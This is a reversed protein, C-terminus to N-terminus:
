SVAGALVEHTVHTSNTAMPVVTYQKHGSRHITLVRTRNTAVVIFESHHVGGISHPVIISDLPHEILTFEGVGRRVM